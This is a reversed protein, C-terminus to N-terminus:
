EGVIAERRPPIFASLVDLLPLELARNLPADGAANIRLQARFHAEKPLTDHARLSSSDAPSEVRHSVLGAHAIIGIGLLQTLGEAILPFADEPRLRAAM